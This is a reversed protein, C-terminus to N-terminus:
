IYKITTSYKNINNIKLLIRLTSGGGGRVVAKRTIMRQFCYIVTFKPILSFRSDHLVYSRSHITLSCNFNLELRPVSSDCTLILNNLYRTVKKFFFFTGTNRETSFKLFFIYLFLWCENYSSLFYMVTSWLIAGFMIFIARVHM